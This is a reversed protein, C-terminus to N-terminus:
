KAHLSQLFTTIQQMSNEWTPHARYRQLAAMSMQILTDRNHILVQMHQALVATEAPEVLFGNEGHAILEHAAGSTSAIAPLGFGMGELYVIGFGEYQSPVVLLHSNAYLSQLTNDSSPGHLTIKENLHAATIQQRIHHTYPPSVATNGVVDLRWDLGSIQSLAAVLAHLGKRPILNGVFLLRLPGPQRARRQVADASLPSGFRDGAPYAVVHPGCDGILDAVTQRTTRSNFVFGDMDSLYRREVWRYFRRQRVPWQERCRLHHVISVLPYRVQRRLRNNLLFLSPHNLEDQLLIDVDLRRLQHYIYPSFNHTLLRGYSSWPLSVLVVEIRNRRLHSVLRRDYLFGGSITDLSGYIVLGVRM